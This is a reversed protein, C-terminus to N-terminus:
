LFWDHSMMRVMPQYISFRQLMNASFARVSLLGGRRRCFQAVTGGWDEDRYTWYASPKSGDSCVELFMHLKPKIRWSKEGEAEFEAGKEWYM